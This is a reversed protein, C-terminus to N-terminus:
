AATLDDYTTITISLEGPHRESQKRGRGVLPSQVSRTTNSQTEGIVACGLFHDRFFRRAWVEVFVPKCIDYRFFVGQLGWKPNQSSIIDSKLRQREVRIICYTDDPAALGSAGNVTIKTVCMPKSCFLSWFKNPGPHEKSLPKVRIRLDM